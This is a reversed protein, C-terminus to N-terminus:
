NPRRTDVARGAAPVYVHGRPNGFDSVVSASMTRVAATTTHAARAPTAPMTAGYGASVAGIQVVAGVLTAFPIACVSALVANRRSVRLRRVSPLATADVGVAGAFRRAGKLRSAALWPSM